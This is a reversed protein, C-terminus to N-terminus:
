VRLRCRLRLDGVDALTGDACVAVQDRTGPQGLDVLRDAFQALIQGLGLGVGVAFADGGHRAVQAVPRRAALVGFQRLRLGVAVHHTEAHRHGISPSSPLRLAQFITPSSSASAALPLTECTEGIASASNPLVTPSVAM